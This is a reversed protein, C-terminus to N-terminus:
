RDRRHPKLVQLASACAAAQYGLSRFLELQQAVSDVSFGDHRCESLARRYEDCATPGMSEMIAVNGLTTRAWFDDPQTVLAARAAWRTAPLLEEPTKWHGAL